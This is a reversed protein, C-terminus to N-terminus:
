KTVKCAATEPHERCLKIYGDPADAPIGSGKLTEPPIACSCLLLLILLYKM